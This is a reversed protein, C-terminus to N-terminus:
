RRTTTSCGTSSPTMGSEREVPTLNRMDFLITIYSARHEEDTYQTHFQGPGYIMLDKEKLHYLTGDVETELEGTDVYTLEFFDHLEGKFCYNETRIRYYYGLIKQIEIRPLVALFEYQSPFDTIHLM